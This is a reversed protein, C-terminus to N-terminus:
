IAKETVRIYKGEQEFIVPVRQIRLRSLIEADAFWFQKRHTGTLKALDGSILMMKRYDGQLAFQVQDPDNGDIIIYRGLRVHDTPNFVSGKAFLVDNKHDRIDDTLVVAPDVYYVRDEEAKAYQGDFRKLVYMEDKLKEIRQRLREELLPQKAAILKLLDEEGIAYTHGLKGYDEMKTDFRSLAYAIGVDGKIKGAGAGSLHVIVPIETIGYDEYLTPDLDVPLETDLKADQMLKKFAAVTAPLNNRVFGRMVMVINHGQRRLVHAERAARILSDPPMSFSFFYYTRASGHVPPVPHSKTETAEKADHTDHQGFVVPHRPKCANATKSSVGNDGCLRDGVVQSSRNMIGLYDDAPRGAQFKDTAERVRDLIDKPPATPVLIDFAHGFVVLFVLLSGLFVATLVMGHAFRVAHDIFRASKVSYTKRM